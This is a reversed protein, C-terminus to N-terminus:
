RSCVNELIQALRITWTDHLLTYSACESISVERGVKSMLYMNIKSELDALNQPGYTSVPHIGLGHIEPHLLFGYRGCTEPLRDSWYNPTGAFICDGVTVRFSAYVDNLLHGRVGQVHKFREGYTKELFEIMQPRFPYQSHYDKAGVFGVDCKYEDRPVGPHCYIESVAPRMWIHNVGRKAFDEQFGGDATFCYECKWFPLVGIGAEREPIGWFKDLHAFVSPLKRKKLGELFKLMAADAIKLFTPTRVWLFLDNFDMAEELDDINVRNEQLTEVEHGLREELAWKIFQETSESPDFNGLFAIRLNEGRERKVRAKKKPTVDELHKSFLERFRANEADFSQRAEYAPKTQLVREIAEYITLASCKYLSALGYNGEKKAELGYCEKLENLPPADTALVTAGVSFAEHVAHGFGETESPYIHYMCQNQLTKLDEDSLRQWYFVNPLIPPNKIATSVICLKNKISKGDKAWRWADIVAQTGRLSSNGGINLFWPKREISPDHQDRALFGVYHVKGPFLPTLIREAEHTKAFVKDIHREITKTSDPKIWEVNAFFWNVPALKLKDPPVVELFIALQFEPLDEPPPTDWQIGTVRHGKEALFDQLLLFDRELGIGNMNTIIAVNM